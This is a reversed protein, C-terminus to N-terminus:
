RGACSDGEGGDLDLCRGDVEPAKVGAVAALTPAIDVTEVALPQEFGAAGPWWFLIPVRRDYNWPSGHGAVYSIPNTLASPTAFEAWAVAIDGSREVDTSAAFRQAMTFADPSLGRPPKAALLEEKTFVAAVLPARAKLRELASAMIKARLEPYARGGVIIQSPEGALPDWDLSFEARLEANVSAMVARTDIRRAPIGRRAAREAADVSGHDATLVVIYPIHLADVHALFQGIREDAWSLQDCMEASEPGFRHGVYDTASLGIALLDTGKGQGLKQTDLIYTALELTVRDFEPSSRFWAQFAPDAAFDTGDAPPTWGPPPIRSDLTQDGFKQPGFMAACRQDHLVWAPPTKRWTDILAANFAAIPALRAAATTGGPVHTTFGGKEENWWFEGDARKGGMPIAARDKGAVAFVRDAPDADKMWAGLTPARLVDPSRTVSMNAVPTSNDDICYVMKYLTPSWFTNGVIGTEAPRMGSLITSHGPCTETAAHSQYGSSFVVGQQLRALGGTFRGRYQSFLDASFQDMSIAIILKPKPPATVPDAALVPAAACLAAALALIKGLM